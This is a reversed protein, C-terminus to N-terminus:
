VVMLLKLYLKFCRRSICTPQQQSLLIFIFPNQQHGSGKPKRVCHFWCNISCTASGHPEEHQLPVQQEELSLQWSLQTAQLRRTGAKRCRHLTMPIRPLQRSCAAAFGERGRSRGASATLVRPLIHLHHQCTDPFPFFSFLGTQM